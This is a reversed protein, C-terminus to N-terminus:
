RRLARGAPESALTHERIALIGGIFCHRVGTALRRPHEYTATAGLRTPDIVALDAIAGPAIRGRAGLKFRDVARTSLHEVARVWGAEGAELYFALMSAFAAWGRPHPRVGVYIGDSCGLHRPHELFFRMDHEDFRERGILVSVELDSEVLLDVVLDGLDKGRRDAAEALSVGVVEADRASAIVIREASPLVKAGIRRRAEPQRLQDVLEPRPAAQLEPPVAVMALLSSGMTYPYADFTASATDELLREAVVAEGWLHSAHGEVGSAEVIAAFEDWGQALRMGYGRLHSVYVGQRAAVLRCLAALEDRDAAGSPVYDLGSSLGIAGADLEDALAREMRALQDADLRAADLGAVRYRLNGNPVLAAVNLWSRADVADLYEAVSAIPGLPSRGNLPGFYDDMYASASADGAVASSGDQGVIVSTIGQALMAHAMRRDFVAWEAHAHADVLGPVVVCGAADIVEADSPGDGPVVVAEIRDDVIVLDRARVEGDMVVRGGSVLRRL